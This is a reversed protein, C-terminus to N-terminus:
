GVELMHVMYRPYILLFGSAARVWRWCTSWTDPTSSCSALPRELGGGAHPGHIQPLHAPLWLGSEGVELMHVMYRPYILLFGSAARVWRWCTSWTDPTSSCSAPPRELRGGAHPGHIQPLHAPLWLDSEGVELMHVMYRPYILLFGSAARVWRWCTSWTDPISSCSAPPRELRGGAHPGHIQPLHAPLWLDSEGVELMHVM